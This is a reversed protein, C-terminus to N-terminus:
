KDQKPSTSKHKGTWRGTWRDDIKILEELMYSYLDKKYYKM